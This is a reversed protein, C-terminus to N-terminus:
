LLEQVDVAHPSVTECVTVTRERAQLLLINCLPGSLVVLGRVHRMAGSADSAPGALPLLWAAVGPSCHGANTGCLDLLVVLQAHGWVGPAGAPLAHHVAHNAFMAWVVRM